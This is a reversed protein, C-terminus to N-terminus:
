NYHEGTTSAAVYTPYYNMSSATKKKKCGFVKKILKYAKPLLGVADDIITKGFETNAGRKALNLGRILKGSDVYGSGTQARRRKRQRRPGIKRVYTRRIGVKTPYLM